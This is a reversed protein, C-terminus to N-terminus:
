GALTFRYATVREDASIPEIERVVYTIGAQTVRMGAVPSFTIGEARTYISRHRDLGLFQAGSPSSASVVDRSDVPPSSPWSYDTTSGTQSGPGSDAQVTYTTAIEFEDLIADVAAMMENGFTTTM